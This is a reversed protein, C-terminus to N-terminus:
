EPIEEVKPAEDEDASRSSVALREILDGHERKANMFKQKHAYLLRNGRAVRARHFEPLTGPSFKYSDVESMNRSLELAFDELLNRIPETFSSAKIQVIWSDVVTMISALQELIEPFNLNGGRVPPQLYAPVINPGLVAQHMALPGSMSFIIVRLTILRHRCSRARHALNSGVHRAVLALSTTQILMPSLPPFTVLLLVM